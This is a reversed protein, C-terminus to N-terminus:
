WFHFEIHDDIPSTVCLGLSDIILAMSRDELHKFFFPTKM